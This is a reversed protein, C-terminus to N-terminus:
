IGSIFLVTPHNDHFNLDWVVPLVKPSSFLLRGKDLPEIKNAFLFPATLTWHQLKFYQHFYSSDSEKRVKSLLWSKGKFECKWRETDLTPEFLSYSIQCSGGFFEDKFQVQALAGASMGLGVMYLKLTFGVQWLCCLTVFVSLWSRISTNSSFDPQM